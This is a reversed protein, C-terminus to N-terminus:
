SPRRVSRMYFCQCTYSLRKAYYGEGPTHPEIAKEPLLRINGIGFIGANRKIANAIAMVCMDVRNGAYGKETYHKKEQETLLVRDKPCCVYIDTTVEKTRENVAKSISTEMTIVIRSDTVAPPIYPVDFCYGILTATKQPTGDADEISYTGGLWNQLPTFDADDPEPMVLNRLDEDNEFIVQLLTKFHGLDQLDKEVTTALPIYRRKNQYTRM